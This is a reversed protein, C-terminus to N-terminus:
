VEEANLSPNPIIEVKMLGLDQINPIFLIGGMLPTLYKLFHDNFHPCGSGLQQKVIAAIKEATNVYGIFFLGTNPQIKDTFHMNVQEEFYPKSQRAMIVSNGNEDRVRSHRIHSNPSFKQSFVDSGNEIYDRGMIYELTHDDRHLDDWNFAIKQAIVFSGGLHEPDEYGILAQLQFTYPDKPVEIGDDFRGGMLANKVGLYEKSSGETLNYSEGLEWKKLFSVVKETVSSDTAESKKIQFLIQVDDKYYNQHWDAPKQSKPATRKISGCISSWYELSFAIIVSKDKSPPEVGDLQNINKYLAQLEMVFEM